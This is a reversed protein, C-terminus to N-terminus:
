IVRTAVVILVPLMHLPFTLQAHTSGDSLHLWTFPRVTNIFKREADNRSEFRIVAERRRLAPAYSITGPDEEGLLVPIQEPMLKGLLDHLNECSDTTRIGVNNLAQLLPLLVADARVTQGTVTTLEGAEHV